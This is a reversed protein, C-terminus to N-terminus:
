AAQAVKIGDLITRVVADDRRVEIMGARFRDLTSDDLKNSANFEKTPGTGKTNATVVIRFDPHRKIPEDMMPNHYEDSEISNNIQTVVTPHAKDIEEGNWIGGDRYAKVYDSEAFRKLLDRGTVASALQGALNTEYYPLNMEAAARKLGSSKLTGTAGHLWVPVNAKIAAVMYPTVRHLGEIREGFTAFDFPAIGAQTRTDDSWTATLSALIGEVPVGQGILKYGNFDSRASNQFNGEIGRDACFKRLRALEADLRDYPCASDKPQEQEPPQEQEQEPQEPPPPPPTQNNRRGNKSVAYVHALCAEHQTRDEARPMRFRPTHLAQGITRPLRTGSNYRYVVLGGIFPSLKVYAAWTDGGTAALAAAVTDSLHITGNQKFKLVSRDM